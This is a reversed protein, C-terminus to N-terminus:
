ALGYTDIDAQIIPATEGILEAWSQTDSERQDIQLGYAFTTLTKHGAADEAMDYWYDIVGFAASGRPEAPAEAGAVEATAETRQDPDAAMGRLTGAAGLTM